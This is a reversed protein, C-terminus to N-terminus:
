ARAQTREARRRAVLEAVDAPDFLFQGTATRVSRLVGTIALQRTRSESLELQRATASIGLPEATFHVM